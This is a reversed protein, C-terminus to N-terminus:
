DSFIKVVLRPIESPESAFVSGGAEAIVPKDRFGWLVSICPIGTNAATEVDVESDGIYVTQEPTVGLEEMARLLADPEPKLAQGELSGIAVPILDGFHEKCLRKVQADPKNSVVGLAYGAGSLVNLLFPIDPYPATQDECHLAYLRKTEALVAPYLPDETGAPIAREVLKAIGNGVFRRVEDTTRPQLGYRELAGNLSDRLDALTDLLTGDLDFLIAKQM